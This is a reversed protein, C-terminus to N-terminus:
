LIDGILPSKSPNPRNDMKIPVLYVNYGSAKFNDWISLSLPISCSKIGPYLKNWM